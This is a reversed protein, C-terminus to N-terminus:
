ALALSLGDHDLQHAVGDLHAAHSALFQIVVDAVDPNRLELFFGAGIQNPVELFDAGLARGLPQNEIQAIIRAAQQAARDADGRSEELGIRQHHRSVATHGIGLM